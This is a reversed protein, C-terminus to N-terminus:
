RRFVGVQVSVEGGRRREIARLIRKSVKTHDNQAKVVPDTSPSRAASQIHHLAERSGFIAGGANIPNKSDGELEKRQAAANLRHLRDKEAQTVDLGDIMRRRENTERRVRRRRAEGPRVVTLLSEELDGAPDIRGLRQSGLQNNLALLQKRQDAPISLTRIFAENADHEAAVKRSEARSPDLQDRLRRDMFRAADPSALFMRHRNREEAMQPASRRLEAAERLMLENLARQRESTRRRADAEREALTNIQEQLRKRDSMQERLKPEIQRLIERHPEADKGHRDANVVDRGTQFQQARMAQLRDDMAAARSELEKRRERIADARPGGTLFTTLERQSRLRNAHKEISQFLRDIKEQSKGTARDTEEMKNLLVTMGATALMVGIGIKPGALMGLASLNNAAGRLMAAPGLHSQSMADDFAFAGQMMMAGGVGGGRGRSRMNANMAVTNRMAANTLGNLAGTQRNAALAAVNMDRAMLLTASAQMRTANSSERLVATTRGFSAMMQKSSAATMAHERQLGKLSGQSSKAGAAFPQNNMTLTVVLTGAGAVGM